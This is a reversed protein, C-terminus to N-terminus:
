PPLSQRRGAGKCVQSLNRVPESIRSAMAMGSLLTIALAVAAGLLSLIIAQRLPAALDNKPVAVVSTWGTLSSRRYANLALLGEWTVNEFFGLTKDGRAAVALEPRALQGVRREADLSRAVYRGERDVVAAAWRPDMGIDSFIHKLHAVRIEGALGYIVDHHDFVPVAIVVTANELGHGRVASVATRGSFVRNALQRDLPEVQGNPGDAFAETVFAGDRRFIGLQAVDPLELVIDSQRRFDEFMNNKIAESGSLGRLMGVKEAIDQDVAASLQNTTDFRQHEILDRKAAALAVALWAFLAVSPVLILAVLSVIRFRITRPRRGLTNAFWQQGVM